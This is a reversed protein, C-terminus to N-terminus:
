PMRVSRSQQLRLAAIEGETSGCVDHNSTAFIREIALRAAERSYRRRVLEVGAASLEACRTADRLLSVVAQALAEAGEAVIADRGPTIGVGEAGIPTTVVPVGLQLAEVVKGKVGAGFRLAALNVRARDMYPEIDPVHGTVVIRPGALSRVEEPPAYGVLVLRAGDVERWVLPMVEHAIFIAADVNPTHPFGGVFVVDSLSSFHEAIRPHLDEPEYFFPPLVYVPKDPTLRRVDDCEAESPSCIADVSQLVGLELLRMEEAERRLVPDNRLEAEQQMRVHHLDHTYYTLKAKSHTRVADICQAAVEPRALWAERVHKGHQSLWGHITAPGRILEIGQSELAEAAPGDAGGDMPGFVVRWGASALLGLYRSMTVGGAHRDPRPVGDDVVLIVPAGDMGRLAFEDSTDYPQRRLVEAFQSVFKAHNLGSLEDRQGAGYSASGRHTIRSRPEYITKLGLARARFAFDFEEYFAPAYQPDLGGLEKFASAPVLFCAGTVCDVVRRYTYAGDCPNGGRGIPRGWGDALIRWGADQITGDVNLLMPGVIAGCPTEAAAKLLASLWGPSVVTDSNLFCLYRGRAVAAGANCSLLFGLNQRNAIKILGKSDPIAGLIPESPCDDVLIVEFSTEGDKYGSLSYLCAEIDDLGKYAAIIISVEPLDVQPFEISGKKAIKQHKISSNETDLLVTSVDLGDIPKSEIEFRKPSRKDASRKFRSAVRPSFPATAFGLGGLIYYNVFYKIPRWPRRYAKTLERALFGRENDVRSLQEQQLTLAAVADGRM